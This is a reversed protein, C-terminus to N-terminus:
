YALGPVPIPIPRPPSKRTTILTLLALVTAFHKVWEPNKQEGPEETGCDNPFYLVYFKDRGFVETYKDSQVRDLDDLGFKLDIVHTLNDRNPAQTRQKVIMLDPSISGKVKRWYCNGRRQPRQAPTSMYATGSKDYMTETKLNSKWFGVSYDVADMITAFTRQKDERVKGKDDGGDYRISDEQDTYLDFRKADTRVPFAQAFLGVACFLPRFPLPRGWSSFPKNGRISSINQQPFITDTADPRVRQVIRDVAYWSAFQMTKKLIEGAQILLEAHSTLEPYQVLAKVIDEDVLSAVPASPATSSCLTRSLRYVLISMLGRLHDIKNSGLSNLLEISEVTHQNYPYIPITM